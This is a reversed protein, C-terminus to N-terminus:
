LYRAILDEDVEVGIGPSQSLKVYGDSDVNFKDKLYFLQSEQTLFPPDYSYELFPCNDLGAVAAAAAPFSLAFNGAISVHPMVMKNFYDAIIGFKRIGTIGMDGLIVDPQYIDFTGKKLHELYDYISIAHEGGAIYMDLEDSMIKLGDLDRFNLPEEFLFVGLSQLERAVKFATERSWYKYGLSVNNQNADVLLTLDPFSARVAEAVKLDEKWDDRHFRIKVAKFGLSIIHSIEDILEKADLLRSTAAYVKIKDTKTGLLKYVPLGAAKGVIDWLAVDLGGYSGRNYSVELGRMATNWFSEIMFPDTDILSQKAIDNVEGLTPGYGTIGEDTYVKVYQVTYSTQSQGGPQEWSPCYPSPFPIPKTKVTKINIVKL